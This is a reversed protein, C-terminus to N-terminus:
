LGFVSGGVSILTNLFMVFIADSLALNLRTRQVPRLLWTRKRDQIIHAIPQSPACSTIM